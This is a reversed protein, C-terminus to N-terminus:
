TALDARDAALAHADDPLRLEFWVSGDTQSAGWADALTDVLALGWGPREGETPPRVRGVFGRGDYALEVHLKEDDLSTRCYLESGEALGSYRLCTSVLENLCVRAAFQFERPQDRTVEDILHRAEAPARPGLRIRFNETSM